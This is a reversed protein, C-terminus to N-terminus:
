LQRHGCWHTPQGGQLNLLILVHLFNSLRKVEASMSEEARLSKCSRKVETTFQQAAADENNSVLHEAIIAGGTSCQVRPLPANNSLSPFPSLSSAAQATTSIWRNEDSQHMRDHEVHSEFRITNLTHHSPIETSITYATCSRPRTEMRNQLAGSSCLNSNILQHVRLRPARVPSSRSFRDLETPCVTM